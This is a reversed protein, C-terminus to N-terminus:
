KNIIWNRVSENFEDAKDIMVWHGSNFAQVKNKPNKMLANIWKTTHFMFPKKTAYCYYMPFSPEINKLNKLGGAVGLWRMAYPLGMGAHINDYNSKAQLAKAMTKHVADSGSLWGLALTMQYSFILLKAKISLSSQFEESAADGVDIGILRDIKEPYKMAYEYGYACGWDHLLLIIKKDISVADVINKIRQVTEELTYKHNDNKTFGPLTFTVCTYNKKFFAVQKDWIEHTDPWGHIMVITEKGEGDIYVETGSVNIKKTM